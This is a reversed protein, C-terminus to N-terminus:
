KRLKIREKGPVYFNTLPVFNGDESVRVIRAQYSASHDTQTYTVAPFLGGFEERRFNEMAANISARDIQRYKEHARIFAREMIMAVVVGEWYSADFKKVTGYKKWLEQLLKIGSSRDSPVGGPFQIVLRDRILGKAMPFFDPDTSTWTGLFLPKYDNRDATKLATVVTAPLVQMFVYDVKNRQLRLMETTLDMTKPPFEEISVLNIGYKEAFEKTPAHISRGYANNYTLLGVRPAEKGRHIVRIYELVAQCDMRYSGFPLYMYQVPPQLIEWGTSFNITPIRYQQIIPKAALGEGTGWTAIM